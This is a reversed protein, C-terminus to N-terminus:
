RKGAERDNRAEELTRGTFLRYFFAVFFVLVILALAKWLKYEIYDMGGDYAWQPGKGVKPAGIGTGEVIVSRLAM